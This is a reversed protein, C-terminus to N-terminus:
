EGPQTASGSLKEQGAEQVGFLQRCGRDAACASALAALAARAHCAAGQCEPPLLAPVELGKARQRARRAADSGGSGLPGSLVQAVDFESLERVTDPIRGPKAVAGAFAADVALRQEVGNVM